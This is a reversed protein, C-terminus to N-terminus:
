PVSRPFGPGHLGLFNSAFEGADDFRRAIKSEGDVGIGHKEEDISRDVPFAKPFEDRRFDCFDQHRGIEFFIYFGCCPEAQNGDGEIFFVRREEFSELVGQEFPDGVFM